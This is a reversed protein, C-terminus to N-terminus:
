RNLYLAVGVGTNFMSITEVTDGIDVSVGFEGYVAFRPHLKLYAGVIGGLYNEDVINSHTFDPGFYTSLQGDVPIHYLISASVQIGDEVDIVREHSGEAYATLRLSVHNAPHVLLGFQSMILQSKVTFGVQRSSQAQAQLALLLLLLPLLRLARRSGNGTEEEFGFHLRCRM